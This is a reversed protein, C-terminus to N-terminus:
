NGNGSNASEIELMGEKCIKTVFPAMLIRKQHATLSPLVALLVNAVNYTLQTGINWPVHGVLSHEPRWLFCDFIVPHHLITQYINDVNSFGQCRPECSNQPSDFSQLSFLMEGQNHTEHSANAKGESMKDQLSALRQLLCQLLEFCLQMASRLMCNEPSTRTVVLKAKLSRLYLLVHCCLPITKVLPEKELAKVLLSQIWSNDLLNSTENEFSSLDTTSTKWQNVTEKVGQKAEGLVQWVLVGFPLAQLLPAIDETASSGKSYLCVHSLPSM